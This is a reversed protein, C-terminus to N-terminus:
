YEIELERCLARAEESGHVAARKLNLRAEDSDVDFLKREKYMLLEAAANGAAAARAILEKAKDLADRDIVKGSM